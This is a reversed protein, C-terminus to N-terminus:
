NPWKWMVGQRMNELNDNLIQKELKYKDVRTMSEQDENQNKLWEIDALWKNQKALREEISHDYHEVILGVSESLRQSLVKSYYKVEESLTKEIETLSDIKHLFSKLERNIDGELANLQNFLENVCYRWKSWALSIDKALFRESATVKQERIKGLVEAENELGLAYQSLLKAISRHPSQQLINHIRQIRIVELARYVTNRLHNAKSQLIQLKSEKTFVPSDESKIKEKQLFRLSALTASTEQLLKYTRELDVTMGLLDGLNLWRNKERKMEALPSLMNIRRQESAQLLQMQERSLDESSMNREAAALRHGYALVEESIELLQKSRNVWRPKYKLVTVQGITFVLDRIEGKIEALQRELSNLVSFNRRGENVIISQSIQINTKEILSELDDRSIFKRNIFKEKLWKRTEILSSNSSRVKQQAGFVDGSRLDLYAMLGKLQYSEDDNPYRSLFLNAKAVAKKAKNMDIYLYISEILADRFSPSTDKVSEYYELAAHPKKLRVSLRALALRSLDKTESDEDDYIDISKKLYQYAIDWDKKAIALVAKLYLSKSKIKNKAGNKEAQDLWSTAIDIDGSKMATKGTLYYLEPMVHDPVHLSSISALLPGIEFEKTSDFKSMITLLSHIVTTLQTYDQDDSTVFTSLYMMYYNMAQRHNGIRENSRAIKEIATLYALGSVTQRFGIYNKLERIASLYEKQHFYRIGLELSMKASHNVSEIEGYALVKDNIKIRKITEDLKSLVSGVELEPSEIKEYISNDYSYCPM